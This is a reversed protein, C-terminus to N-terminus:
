TIIKIKLMMEFIMKLYWQMTAAAMMHRRKFDRVFTEGNRFNDVGLQVAIEAAKDKLAEDDDLLTPSHLLFEHLAQEINRSTARKCCKSQPCALPNAIENLYYAKKKLIVSINASNKLNYRRKIESYSVGNEM